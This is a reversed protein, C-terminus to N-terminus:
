AAQLPAVPHGLKDAVVEALRAYLEHGDRDDVWTRRAPDWRYHWARAGAAFWMQSAPTQRNLVFRAGDTFEITLLGDGTAFDVEEEDLGCVWREVDRLCADVLHLYEQRDM